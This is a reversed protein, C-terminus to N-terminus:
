WALKQSRDELEKAGEESIDFRSNIKDKWLIIKHNFQRQKTKNKNQM